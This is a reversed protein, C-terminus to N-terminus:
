GEKVEDAIHVPPYLFHFVRIRDKDDILLFAGGIDPQVRPYWRVGKYWPTFAQWTPLQIYHQDAKHIYCWKHRHARIIVDVKPIKGLAEAEKFLMMDRGLITEPYIVARTSAHSVNAVRKSPTLRLNAISDFYIGGLAEAIRKHLRVNIALSEHYPSGRWVGVKLKGFMRLLMLSAEVQEELDTTMMYMGYEKPNMGSLVDGVLFLSDAKLKKAQKVFDTWYDLLKLQGQNMMASIKSNELPSTYNRPWVSYRSGVHMDAVLAIM